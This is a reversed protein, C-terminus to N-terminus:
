VPRELAVYPLPLHGVIEGVLCVDVQPVGRLGAVPGPYVEVLGGFLYAFRHKVKGYAVAVLSVAAIVGVHDYRTDGGWHCQLMEVRCLNLYHGIRGQALNHNVFPEANGSRHEIGRAADCPFPM